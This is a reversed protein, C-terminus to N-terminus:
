TIEVRTERIQEYITFSYIVTMKIEEPPSSCNRKSKFYGRWKIFHIIMKTASNPKLYIIKSRSIEQLFYKKFYFKEKRSKNVM